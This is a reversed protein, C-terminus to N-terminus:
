SPVKVAELVMTEFSNMEEGCFEQHRELGRLAEYRSEGVGVSRIELFGARSLADTLEERTYLCRHGWSHMVLNLARCPTMSDLGLLIRFQELYRQQALDLPQSFLGVFKSLDPTAVRFVGGPKLCRYTERMCSLGAERDLHEIFHECFAFDIAAGELPFTKECDLYVIAPVIPEVDTNLWGAILKNSAGLHLKRCDHQALYEQIRQKSALKM